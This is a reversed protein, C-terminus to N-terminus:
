KVCRGKVGMTVYNELLNNEFTTIIERQNQKRKLALKILFDTLEEFTKGSAEWLYFALSGPITNIENFFVESTDKDILFDVRAVGNCNLKVFADRAMSKIKEEHISDIEAPIIRKAGSMGKTSNHMYKDNYSLIEESSIPEECCSVECGGIDGLVSCNIERFNKIAKEILIKESFIGAIEIAEELEVEDKAKKIGISSGLNSPKVIVPYGLKDGVYNRIEPFKEPWNRSFFWYFDVVPINSERLLLKTAIKDMCIASSLVDCGVYPIDLTEFFGQITGDEGKSGHFIPFAIDIEEIINKGIVNFPFKFLVKKDGNSLLTVRACSKILKDINNFNEVKLLAKGTYWEGKKTIYIPVINYKNKMIGIAQHATIISVEHEVSVGGFFVGVNTM